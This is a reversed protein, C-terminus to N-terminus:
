KLCRHSEIAELIYEKRSSYNACKKNYEQENGDCNKIDLLNNELERISKQLEIIEEIHHSALAYEETSSDFNKMRNEWNSLFTDLTRLWNGFNTEVDAIFHDTKSKTSMPPNTSPPCFIQHQAKIDNSLITIWESCCSQTPQNISENFLYIEFNTKNPLLSDTLIHELIYVKDVDFVAEKCALIILELLVQKADCLQSTPERLLNSIHGFLYQCTQTSKHKVKCVSNTCNTKSKAYPIRLVLYKQFFRKILISNADHQIMKAVLNQDDHTKRLVYLIGNEYKVGCFCSRMIETNLFKVVKEDRKTKPMYPNTGLGTNTITYDNADPLKLEVFNEINTSQFYYSTTDRLPALIAIQKPECVYAIIKNVTGYIYAMIIGHKLHSFRAFPKGEFRGTIDNSLFVKTKNWREYDIGTKDIFQCMESYFYECIEKGKNISFVLKNTSRLKDKTGKSICFENELNVNESIDFIDRMVDDFLTYDDVFVDFTFGHITYTRGEENTCALGSPTYSKTINTTPRRMNFAKCLEFLQDYINNFSVTKEPNEDSFFLPLEKQKIEELIYLCLKLIELEKCIEENAFCSFSNKIIYDISEKLPESYHNQIFLQNIDDIDNNQLIKEFLDRLLRKVEFLHYHLLADNKEDGDLNSIDTSSECFARFAQGSGIIREDLKTSDIDSFLESFYFLYFNKEAIEKELSPCYSSLLELAHESDDNEAYITAKCTTYNSGLTDILRKAIHKITIDVIYPGSTEGDYLNEVECPSINPPKFENLCHSLVHIVEDMEETFRKDNRKSLISQIITPNKSFEDFKMLEDIIYLYQPSPASVSKCLILLIERQHTYIAKKFDLLSIEGFLFLTADEPKGCYEYCYSILIDRKIIQAENLKRTSKINCSKNKSLNYCIRAERYNHVKFHLCAVYYYLIEQLPLFQEQYDGLCELIQITESLLAERNKIYTTKDHAFSTSKQSLVDMIIIKDVNLIAREDLTPCYQHCFLGINNYLCELEQINYQNLPKKLAQAIEKRIIKRKVLDEM